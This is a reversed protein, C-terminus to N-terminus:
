LTHNGVSSHQLITGDNQSHKIVQIGVKNKFKYTKFMSTNKTISYNYTVSDTFVPCLQM